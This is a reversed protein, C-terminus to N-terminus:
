LEGKTTPYVGPNFERIYFVKPETGLHEKLRWPRYRNLLKSVASNPDNLDGFIRANAPCSEVCFPLKGAVVRHDCFTCKEVIGKYRLGAGKASKEKDPNYYPILDGKVKETVEAPASTCGPLTAKKGRWFRHTNKRNPFPIDYPCMAACTKCGICKEPTHMTIDGAGKHMAKTPCALVCPADECQNCLTPIYEYRVNPFKGVTRTTKSSFAVGAQVNNESKCSFICGGCGTCRQLDIVMALRAGDLSKGEGASAVSGAVSLAAAAAGGRKLFDRRSLGNDQTSEDHKNPLTDM